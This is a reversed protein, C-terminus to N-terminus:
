LVNNQRCNPCTKNNSYWEYKCKKCSQFICYLCCQELNKNELCIPCETDLNMYQDNIIIGRDNDVSRCFLLDLLHGFCNKSM